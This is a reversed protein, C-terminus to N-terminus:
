GGSGSDPLGPPILKQCSHFAQTFQTSQIDVLHQLMPFEVQGNSFAPEPFNTIGHSRMCAALKLYDSQQQTSITQSAQGSLSKGPVLHLCDNQAAELQSNSVGLQQPTEKPIGGSSAPDPFNTIGHSRMCSAYALLGQANGGSGTSSGSGTSVASASSAAGGANPAGGSGTSSPSSSCAAALLAVGATATILVVVRARRLRPPRQGLGRGPSNMKNM